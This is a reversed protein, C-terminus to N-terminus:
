ETMNDLGNWAAIPIMVVRISICRLFAIALYREGALVSESLSRALRLGTFCVEISVM